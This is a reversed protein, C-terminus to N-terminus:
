LVFWRNDNINFSAVQHGKWLGLAYDQANVVINTVVQGIHSETSASFVIRIRQNIKSM